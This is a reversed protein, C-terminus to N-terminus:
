LMECIYLCVHVGHAVSYSQSINASKLVEKVTPSLLLSAVLNVVYKECCRLHTVVSGQSICFILLLLENSTNLKFFLMCKRIFM